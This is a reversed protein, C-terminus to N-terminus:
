GGCNRVQVFNSIITEGDTVGDNPTIENHWIENIKTEESVIVSQTIEGDLSCIYSQYIQEASLVRNFVELQDFEGNFFGSSTSGHGIDLSEKSGLSFTRYGPEISVIGNCYILLEEDFSNWVVAIHYWTHNSIDETRVARKVKDVYLGAHIEGGYQFITIFDSTGGAELIVDHDNDPDYCNIQFCITFDNESINKLIDPADMTIYSSSGDFYYAGNGKDTTIWQANTITGTINNGSYDKTTTSSNTDFPMLLEYISEGNVFWNVIYTKAEISPIISYNSFILDECSTDTFLSSILMPLETQNIKVNETKGILIGDFITQEGDEFCILQIHLSENENRLKRSTPIIQEGIEFWDNEQNYSTSGILTGNEDWILIKYSTLVEGGLHELIVSGDSAVYGSIKVNSNVFDSDPLPFVFNYIAGFALVAVILLLIGGIIESVAFTNPMSKRKTM